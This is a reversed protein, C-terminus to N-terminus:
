GPIENALTAALANELSEVNVPKTLHATFGSSLSGAVDQEAGYGTLAIGKAGFKKQFEGMLDYGNGDPLGIDSILLEFDKNKEMSSCAQAFSAASTVRYRRQLLLQTLILRTAEHDEVLLIHLHEGSKKEIAADPMSGSALPLSIMEEKEPPTILPLEISFTAGQGKGPSSARISGSHLEVLARSIALGLGLGGFHHVGQSFAGFIREIEDASM